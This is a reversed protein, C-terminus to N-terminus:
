TSRRRGDKLDKETLQLLTGVSGLVTNNSAIVAMLNKITENQQDIVVKMRDESKQSETSMHRMFLVTLGVLCALAPVQKAAEALFSSEM